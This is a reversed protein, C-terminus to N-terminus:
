YHILQMAFNMKFKRFKKLSNRRLNHLITVSKLGRKVAVCIDQKM